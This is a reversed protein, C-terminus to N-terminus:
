PVFARLLQHSRADLRYSQEAGKGGLHLSQVTISPLNVLLRYNAIYVDVVAALCDNTTHLMAPRRFFLESSISVSLSM